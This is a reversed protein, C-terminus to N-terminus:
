HPKSCRWIHEIRVIKIRMHRLILDFTRSDLWHLGPLEVTVGQVPVLFYGSAVSLHYDPWKQWNKFKVVIFHLKQIMVAFVSNSLKDQSSDSYSFYEICNM